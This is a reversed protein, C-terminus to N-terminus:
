TQIRVPMILHFFSPDNKLRFVGPSLAESAEFAMEEASVAGLLDLLFRCNFAIELKGGSTKAEIETENGGVQPSEASIVMKGSDLNLKVVNAQERAFIAAMKVARFFEERDFEAKIESSDPIIKEFDPFEGDILRSSYDVGPLAFVVQNKDTTLAMKIEEDKDDKEQSIRAVELLTKAPVLLNEKLTGKKVKMEKVSLRYGDTAVLSLGNKSPSLLVGTLVPRGEDTAAAFVVQALNKAFDQKQFVLDPQGSFSPIKPFDAVSGGSFNAKFVASSLFLSNNKAELVIKEPPLSAVFEALVRAPIAISGEKEVKAGLWLNIGSELNTASLKLRGKETVLVVNSLIPLAAKPAISRSVISLAKAFNEQLLSVKM